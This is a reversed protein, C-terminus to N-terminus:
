HKGAYAVRWVIGNGDDSVLLAGDAAVAVGVPRGAVRDRGLVFGTMFDEYEGTPVGNKVIARIVKYGTPESRNWSGHEAAFANGTYEAPFQRAEYFTMQLSASHPQLLVDPVIAKGALDPRQGKLRPEENSGIYYWPWGYYGGERVRTLYDPVLDDGLGDRENTSCWVDGSAANVALGVCNRIGTAYIRENKGDPTFALVAARSTEGGWLAGVAGKAAEFTQAEAVSKPAIQEAVNSQSGVSVLMRSGDKSFVVDRTVHGGSPLKPVIVEPGGRAKLDGNRYPYRVVRDEAAVYVWEPGPPYFAIGFPGDLRSAFTEASKAPGGEAGPRLVRIRGASTEAVFVDGNPAVRLARPADLDAAFRSVTFGPPVKPAFGAPPAVVRPSHATARSAYPAPLDGPRILRRVGPADQRWDGFAVKGTRTSGPQMPDPEAVALAPAACAALVLAGLRRSFRACDNGATRM